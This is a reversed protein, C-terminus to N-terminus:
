RTSKLSKIAERAKGTRKAALERDLGQTSTLKELGKNWAGSEVPTHHVSTRELKLADPNPCVNLCAGCYICQMDNIQIRQDEGLSLANVPCVDLCSHCGEPCLKRDIGISGEFFKTVKVADTPCEIWCVQCGACRDKKLEIVTKETGASLGRSKRENQEERTLPEFRVSIADLPCKEECKKCGPECKESDIELDRILTPFVDKSVAPIGEQSDATITIASFPCAAACIGHFDCKNEDIDIVPALTKGDPGKKAPKVSVAERPCVLKCIACGKCRTRDITLVFRKTYFIEGIELEEDDERKYRKM